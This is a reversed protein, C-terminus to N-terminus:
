KLSEDIIKELDNVVGNYKKIEADLKKIINNKLSVKDELIQIEKHMVFLEQKLYVIMDDKNM